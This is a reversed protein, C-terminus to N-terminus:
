DDKAMIRALENQWAVEYWDFNFDEMDVEYNLGLNNIREVLIEIENIKETAEYEDTIWELM